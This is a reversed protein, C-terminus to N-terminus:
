LDLGSLCMFAMAMLGVTIFTIGLGQLPKPVNTYAMKERIAALGVIALLWGIGSGLAYAFTDGICGIAKTETAPDMLIRQQMFLSAGMIACNVAILPLFIGLSAYLSPSFREVVMEVLQVIGAIVAIFLIFALYSLDVGEVLCDPGLIKTQLLYNTPVTVCLVFTVALGLGLSTKVNKSVALFSCMGLFFAFIMNDVFISRFFLNILQEM